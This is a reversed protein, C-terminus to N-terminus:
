ATRFETGDVWMRHMIVALKRALAIKARKAGRRAAVRMAAIMCAMSRSPASDLGAQFSFSFSAAVLERAPANAGPLSGTIADIRYCAAASMMALQAKLM